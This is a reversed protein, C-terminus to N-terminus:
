ENQLTVDEGFYKRGLYNTGMFAASSVSGLVLALVLCKAVSKFFGGRKKKPPKREFMESSNYHTYNSGTDYYNGTTNNDRMDEYM